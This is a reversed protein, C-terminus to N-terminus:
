DHQIGRKITSRVKRKVRGLQSRVRQIATRQHSTHPSIDKLEVVAEKLEVHQGHLDTIKENIIEFHKTLIKTDDQGAQLHNFLYGIGTSNSSLDQRLMRNAVKLRYKNHTEKGATVSNGNAGKVDPRIHYFALSYDSEVKEIDFFRMFRLTFDWDGLVPLTEDFGGIKDYARRSFMFSIPVAFNTRALNYLSYDLTNPYWRARGTEIVADKRMTEIVQDTPAIAGDAREAELVEVMRKLFDPHWADDDDHIVIYTSDLSRVGKNSAAEMGISTKNHIVRVRDKFIPEYHELLQNVEKQSGGDNVIVHVFDTFTQQHVSKLARELLVIRNKTRTIVAVKPIESM